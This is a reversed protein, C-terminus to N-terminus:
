ERPINGQSKVYYWDRIYVHDSRSVSKKKCDPPTTQRSATQPIALKAFTSLVSASPTAAFMAADAAYANSFTSSASTSPKRLSFDLDSIWCCFEGDRRVCVLAADLADSAPVYQANGLDRGGQTGMCYQFKEKVVCRTM